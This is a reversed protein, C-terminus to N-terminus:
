PMVQGLVVSLVCFRPVFQDDFTNEQSAESIHRTVNAREIIQKVDCLGDVNIPIKPVEPAKM